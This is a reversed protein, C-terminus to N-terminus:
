LHDIGLPTAGEFGWVPALLEPLVNSNRQTLNFDGGLIVPEDPNAFGDVFTAARLLEADALRKDVSGTAHLKAIVLTGGARKVRVVTCGRREKAWALESRAGGPYRRRFGPPNLRLHRHERVRLTSSVLIANAQGTFASRLLGHDIDTLVRGLEASSPIPGITPRRVVDAVPTMQSWARLHDLSWVPLEQLLVVGPDDASALRVAEALFAQREPPVANGHFVNWTRVVLRVVRRAHADDDGVRGGERRRVVVLECRRQCVRSRVDLEDRREEPEARRPRRVAITAALGEIREARAHEPPRPHADRDLDRLVHGPGGREERALGVDEVHLPQGRRLEVGADKPRAHRGDEGCVVQQRPPGRRLALEPAPQE